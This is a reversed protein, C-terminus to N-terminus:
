DLRKPALYLTKDTKLIESKLHLSYRVVVSKRPHVKYTQKPSLM